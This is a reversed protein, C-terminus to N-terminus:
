RMERPRSVVIVHRARAVGNSLTSGILRPSGGSHTTGSSASTTPPPAAAFYNRVSASALSKVKGADLPRSPLWIWTTRGM